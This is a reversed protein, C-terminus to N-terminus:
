GKQRAAASVRDVDSRSTMLFLASTGEVVQESVSKVFRKDIGYTSLKGAGTETSSYGFVVTDYSYCIGLHNEIALDYFDVSDKPM